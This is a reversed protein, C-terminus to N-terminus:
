SRRHATPLAPKRPLGQRTLQPADTETCNLFVQHRVALGGLPLPTCMAQSCLRPGVSLLGVLGCVGPWCGACAQPSDGPPATARRWLLPYETATARRTQNGHAEEEISASRPPSGSGCGGAGARGHLGTPDRGSRDSPQTQRVSFHCHPVSNHHPHTCSFALSPSPRRPQFRPANVPHHCSPNTVAQECDGLQTSQLGGTSLTIVHRYPRQSITATRNAQTPAPRRCPCIGPIIYTVTVSEPLLLFGM